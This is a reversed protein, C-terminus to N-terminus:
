LDGRRQKGIISKNQEAKKMLGVIEAESPRVYIPGAGDPLGGQSQFTQIGLELLTPLEQSSVAISVHGPKNMGSGEAYIKYADPGTLLVNKQGEAISRLEEPPLDLYEGIRRGGEYVATYFRSKRADIVPLVTGPFFAFRAGFTDLTSAGSLPCGAALALGKAAAMGIRLGTFSGPGLSCVILDLDKAELSLSSLVKEIWAILKEGHRFGSTVSVACTEEGKRAIVGLRGTATDIGLVNM